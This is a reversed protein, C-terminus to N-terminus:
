SFSFRWSKTFSHLPGTMYNALAAEQKHASALSIDDVHLSIKMGPWRSAFHVITSHLTTALETTASTSGALIGRCPQILKSVAGTSFLLRRPASYLGIMQRLLIEPFQLRAAAAKLVKWEVHDFAKELDITIEASHM